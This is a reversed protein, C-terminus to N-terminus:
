SATVNITCDNYFPAPLDLPTGDADAFTFSEADPLIERMIADLDSEMFYSFCPFLGIYSNEGYDFTIYIGAYITTSETFVDAETFEETLAKDKFLHQLNFEGRMEDTLGTGREVIYSEILVDNASVTITLRLDEMKAYLTIDSKLHGLSTVKSDDSLDESTHWSLIAYKEHM